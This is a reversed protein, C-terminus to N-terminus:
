EENNTEPPEPSPATTSPTSSTPSSPPISPISSISSSSSVSSVSSTLPESSISTISSTSSASESVSSSADEGSATSSAPQSVASSAASSEVTTSGSASSSPAASSLSSGTSSSAQPEEEEEQDIMDAEDIHEADDEPNFAGEVSAADETVTPVFSDPVKLYPPTMSTNWIFSIGLDPHTWTYNDHYRGCSLPKGSDDFIPVNRICANWVTNSSVPINRSDLPFIMTGNDTVQARITIPNGVSLAHWSFIVDEPAPAALRIVFGTATTKSVAYLVPVDPSATVVPTATFGSGFNVTVSTGTRPIMAFGAHKDSLILEGKIEVNNLFVALGDITVDGMVFLSGEVILDAIYVSAERLDLFSGSGFAMGGNVTLMGDIVAGSSVRLETADLLGNLAVGGDIHLGNPVFLSSASLAGDIHLDGGIRASDGTTLTGDIELSSTRTFSGTQSIVTTAGTMNRVRALEEKLLALESMIAEITQQQSQMGALQREVETTIQEDVNLDGLAASVMIQVEDEIEMGAITQLVKEEVAEVTVSSNRRSILVNVTGEEEDMSELAVGVTSEGAAAKRAYGPVSAATLADGPRIEGGENTVRAPVQGILGVLAYGPPMIGGAGSISNGIFAPNTSVIGMINGDADRECRKVANSRTVDICVVEGPKLQQNGAYFWEAYDAGSSNYAGDAHVVGNAQIRFVKNEDSSVDSYIEFLNGTADTRESDITLTTGTTSALHLSSGSALGEWVLGGSSTISNSAHIVAGSISGKVDLQAKAVESGVNNGIVVAGSVTLKSGPTTTDIGVNGTNNLTLITREGGGGGREIEIYSNNFTIAPGGDTNSIRRGNGMGISLPYTIGNVLLDGQMTVEGLMTSEGEVVLTGSSSLTKEAHLVAGSVTNLVNLGLTNIGGGTVNIALAGTMTDGSALVYHDVLGSSGGGGSQDTGCSFRGTAADWLLKSDAADCDTLGVGQLSSAIYLSNGSGAGEWVLTGSSALTKEAHLVAGSITNLVNLGLTNRNGGTINITLAGTMTDGSTNVYRPDSIALVAGTNTGASITGCSFRGTASDWQLKQTSLDCDTLGAGSMSSSIYLTAGSISGKVDLTAKAQEHDIDNGIIVSGSVALRAEPATAGLGLSGTRTLIIGNRGGFVVDPLIKFKSNDSVDIGTVWTGDSISTDFYSYHVTISIHDIRATVFGCELCNASVSLAFGFNSANIDAPTWSEEWLNGVGGYTAIEDTTTWETASAKNESGFVGGKVINVEADNITHLEELKNREVSVVIGDISAGSPINFGFNTAVLAQSWGEPDVEAIAYNGDSAEVNDTSGWAFPSGTSSDDSTQTDSSGSVQDLVTGSSVIGERQQFLIATDAGTGHNILSLLPHTNQNGSVIIRGSSTLAKEAHIISGSLTNLVKLGLTNANGGTVNIILTGTMTDGSALVYHDVLGSSGGSQDTGCSFRGTASDWLLKSTEAVDCDTLGAGQLSSAIYLSGGSGAGEWVLTGSSALTKQARIVAGSITNIVNLGITNRNGGTINIVLVGTMTDGGINVYRPDGLRLVAGSFSATGAEPTGSDGSQDTGCSFRGTAADWLLKSSGAVDCDTLGAGQLSSAIYLSAGSAAGEWVLGGSSTLTQEAHVVAGSITNLVNLGITNIDGGTVNITLAGTMTDGSTNVYRPDALLLVGGSFSATGVEPTSSGGEGSQDTGCSFRETTADWLLKSTEAVDCDTLGAGSMSSTIYLSAGSITGGVELASEPNNEVNIGVSGGNIFRVDGSADLMLDSNAFSSDITTDGNASNYSFTSRTGNGGLGLSTGALIATHNAGIAVNSSVSITGQRVYLGGLVDLPAGPTTGGIAVRESATDVYFVPNGGDADLIQFAGAADTTTQMYFNGEMVLSGSTSLTKEAHLVAGSVTNLVNLGLTNRNGGTVNITLAGTMTDGSALVYHDVIGSSGGSSQDTGCSFRGTSSDWLLKSTESVDCDTLGAGQLSSAVYLTAGSAAGEWVLTGSSALTKSARIVAGSITNLVNLGITSQNGGTVNITLAGTMTDGAINVYRPDGIAIVSGTSTGAQTGCGLNGDTDTTILACSTYSRFTVEDDVTLTGSSTLSDTMHLVAGSIAGRVRIATGGTSFLITGTMTNAQNKRLFETSDLGDITDTNFAYPVAGFSRRPSFTEEFTGDNGPDFEVQLYLNDTNFNVSGTMTVHTGLGVTFLGGTMTVRTSSDTWNESWLINGGTAADYIKFRMNYTGNAVAAGNIASVKGQYNIIKNIGTAAHAQPVTILHSLHSTLGINGIFLDIMLAALVAAAAARRAWLGCGM